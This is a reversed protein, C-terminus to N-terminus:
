QRAAGLQMLTITEASSSMIEAMTKIGQATPHIDDAYQVERWRPHRALSYIRHSVSSMANSLALARSELGSTRQSTEKSEDRTPYLWITVRKGRVAPTDMLKRLEDQWVAPPVKLADPTTGCPERKILYKQILYGLAFNPHSRPHTTECAWSSAQGFDASNVVFEFHNFKILVEPHQQLYRIENILAWSGASVPWYMRGQLETLVPGLKASHDMTNGGLVISDGILLVDGSRQESFLRPTGMSKDNFHWNNRNLFAGSQLPAPIYGVQKDALYLPFEVAGALRISAEIATTVLGIVLLAFITKKTNM